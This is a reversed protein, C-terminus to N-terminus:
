SETVAPSLVDYRGGCCPHASRGTSASRPREIANEFGTRRSKVAHAAAAASAPHPDTAPVPPEAFMEPEGATVCEADLATSVSTDAGDLAPVVVPLELAADVLVCDVVADKVSVVDERATTWAAGGSGAGCVWASAGAVCGLAM